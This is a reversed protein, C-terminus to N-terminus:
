LYRTIMPIKKQCLSWHHDGHIIRGNGCSSMEMQKMSLILLIMLTNFDKEEDNLHIYYYRMECSGQIQFLIQNLHEIEHNHKGATDNEGYLM